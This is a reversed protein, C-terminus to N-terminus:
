PKGFINGKLEDLRGKQAQTAKKFKGGEQKLASARADYNSILSGEIEDLVATLQEPDGNSALIDIQHNVDQNSLRGDPNKARALTYALDVINARFAASQGAKGFSKEIAASYNSADSLASEEAKKGNVVATGGAIEAAAGLQAAVAGAVRQGVGVIGMISAGGDKAQTRIRNILGMAATTSYELERLGEGEKKTGGFSGPEGTETKDIGKKTYRSLQADTLIQGDHEIRGSPFEMAWFPENTEKDFLQIRTAKGGDKSYKDRTGKRITEALELDGRAEAMLADQEAKGFEGVADMGYVAESRAAKLADDTLDEPSLSFQPAMALREEPSKDLLTSTIRFQMDSKAQMEALQDKFSVKKPTRAEALALDNAEIKQAGMRRNLVDARGQEMNGVIDPGKMGAIAALISM